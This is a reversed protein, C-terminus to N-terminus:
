LGGGVWKHLQCQSASLRYSNEVLELLAVTKCYLTIIIENILFNFFVLNYIPKVYQHHSLKETSTPIFKTCLFM